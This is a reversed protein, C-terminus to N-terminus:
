LFLNGSRLIEHEISGSLHSSNSDTLFPADPYRGFLRAGFYLAMVIKTTASKLM